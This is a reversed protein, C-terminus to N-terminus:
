GHKVPSVKKVLVIDVEWLQEGRDLVIDRTDFVMLPDISAKSRLVIYARGRPWSKGSSKVVPRRSLTAPNKSRTM